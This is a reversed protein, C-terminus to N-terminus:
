LKFPVAPGQQKEHNSTTGSVLVRCLHYDPAILEQGRVALPPDADFVPSLKRPIKSERQKRFLACPRSGGGRGAEGALREDIELEM